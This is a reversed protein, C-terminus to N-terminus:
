RPNSELGISNNCRTFLVGGSFSKQECWDSGPHPVETVTTAVADFQPLTVWFFKSYKSASVYDNVPISTIKAYVDLIHFSNTAVVDSGVYYSKVEEALKIYRYDNIGLSNVTIGNVGATIISLLGYLLWGGDAWEMPRFGMIFIILGYGLLRVSPDYSRVCLLLASCVLCSMGYIRLWRGDPTPRLSCFCIAALIMCLSFAIRPFTAAVTGHWSFLFSRLLSIIFNPAAAAIVKLSSAGHSAPLWTDVTLVNFTIIVGISTVLAIGPLWYSRVLSGWGRQAAISDALFASPLFVVAILKIPVLLSWILGSLTRESRQLAFTIAIFFLAYSLIDAHVENALLRFFGCGLAVSFGLGAQWAWDLKRLLFYIVSITTGFSLYNLLLATRLPDGFASLLASYGPPWHNFAEGTLGRYGYGQQLSRAGMIYAYGDVDRIGLRPHLVFIFLVASCFLLVPTVIPQHGHSNLAAISRNIALCFDRVM